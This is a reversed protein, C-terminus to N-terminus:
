IQLSRTSFMYRFYELKFLTQTTFKKHGRRDMCVVWNACEVECKTPIKSLINTGITNVGVHILYQM